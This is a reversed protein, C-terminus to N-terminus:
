LMDWSWELNATLDVSGDTGAGAIVNMSLYKSISGCYALAVRLGGIEDTPTMLELGLKDGRLFEYRIGSGALWREPGGKAGVAVLWHTARWRGRDLNVYAGVSRMGDAQEQLSAQYSAFLGGDWPSHPAEFSVGLTAALAQFSASRGDHSVYNTTVSVSLGPDARWVDAGAAVDAAAPLAAALWVLGIAPLYPQPQSERCKGHSNRYLM